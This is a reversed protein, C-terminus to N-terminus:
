FTYSVKSAYRSKLHTADDFKELDNLQYIVVTYDLAHAEIPVYVTILPKEDRTHVLPGRDLIIWPYLPYLETYGQYSSASPIHCNVKM